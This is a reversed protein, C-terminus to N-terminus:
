YFISFYFCFLAVLCLFVRLEICKTNLLLVLFAFSGLGFWIGALEVQHLRPNPVPLFRVEEFYHIFVVATGEVGQALHEKFLAPTKTLDKVRNKKVKFELIRLVDLPLFLLYDSSFVGILDFYASLSYDIIWPYILGLATLSYSITICIFLYHFYRISVKNKSMEKAPNLKLFVAAIFCGCIITAVQLISIQELESM